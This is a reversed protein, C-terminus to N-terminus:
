VMFAPFVWFRTLGVRHARGKKPFPVFSQLEFWPLVYLMLERVAQRSSLSGSGFLSLAWFPVVESIYACKGVGDQRKKQLTFAMAYYHM